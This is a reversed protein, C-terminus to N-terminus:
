HGPYNNLQDTYCLSRGLQLLEFIVYWLISKGSGAVLQSILPLFLSGYILSVFAKRSDVTLFGCKEM